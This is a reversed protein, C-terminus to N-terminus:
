EIGSKLFPVLMNVVEHPQLMDNYLVVGVSLADYNSLLQQMVRVEDDLIAYQEESLVNQVTMLQFYQEEGFPYPMFTYPSKSDKANERDYLAYYRPYDPKWHALRISNETITSFYKDRSNYSIEFIISVGLTDSPSYRLRLIRGTDEFPTTIFEASYGEPLIKSRSVKNPNSAYMLPVLSAWTGIFMDQLKDYDM